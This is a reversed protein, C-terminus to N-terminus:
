SRPPWRACCRVSPATPKFLAAMGAPRVGACCRCVALGACGFQRGFMVLGVITGIVSSLPCCSGGRRRRADALEKAGASASDVVGAILIAIAPYLPLVYHPLKTMVLEFVIWAPVIWGAPIACGERPAGGLGSPAAMAALTAGPWFTVWFLVFTIVRRRAM